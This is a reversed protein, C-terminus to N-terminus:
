KSLEMENIKLLEKVTMGSVPHVFDSAIENLPKLVFDRESLYPHPINLEDVNLILTDYFLIDIDIIRPGWKIDRVRGLDDEIRMIENLLSKPNLETEIEIAMNLFELQETMGWPETEIVSSTAVVKIDYHRNITTIARDLNAKKNGLNSGLGLFIKRM